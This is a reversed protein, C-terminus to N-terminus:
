EKWRTIINAVMSISIGYKEAIKKRSGGNKWELYVAARTEKPIITTGNIAIAHTYTKECRKIIEEGNGGSLAQGWESLFWRELAKQRDSKRGLRESRRMANKLDKVALSVIAVRLNEYGDDMM